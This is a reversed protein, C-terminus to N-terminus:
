EDGKQVVQHRISARMRGTDILPKSSGKGKITSPANPPTRIATIKAKISEAIVLGIKNLQGIPDANLSTIRVMAKYTLQSFFDKKEDMTSRIFPRPPIVTNNGAGARRTGFENVAAVGALNLDGEPYPKAGDESLIGVKIYAVDKMQEITKQVKKFGKDIYKTNIKSKIM